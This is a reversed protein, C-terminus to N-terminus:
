ATEFNTKKTSQIVVISTKSMEMRINLQTLDLIRREINEHWFSENKSIVKVKLLCLIKKHTKYVFM